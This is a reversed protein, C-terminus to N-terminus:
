RRRKKKGVVLYKPWAYRKTWGRWVNMKRRKVSCNKRNVFDCKKWTLIGLM